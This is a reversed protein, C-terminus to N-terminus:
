AARWAVVTYGGPADTFHREVAFGSGAALAEILPADYKQSQETYITEGAAFHLTVGLRRSMVRQACRSVLFSRATGDLPDYSAYHSFQSRDFDFGCERNLRRLLNLNFQATIGAADDYAARIAHPDKKLDLGLLLRDGAALRDRVGRLLALAEDRTYNGLNSGMFLAAQRAGPRAAPWHRFYDGCVPAVPLAPLAAAFRAVLQQLALAAADVPRYVLAACRAHLAACLPLTKAGDGSGLEVLELASGHPPTLLAAMADAQARLLADEARTLYYEPLATIQQFLRTGEDDYFLAAPLSKHPQQLGELVRRQLEADMAPAGVPSGSGQASVSEGEPHGLASM